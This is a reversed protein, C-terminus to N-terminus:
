AGDSSFAQQGLPLNREERLTPWDQILQIHQPAIPLECWVGKDKFFLDRYFEHNQPASIRFLDLDSADYFRSIPQITGGLIPDFAM